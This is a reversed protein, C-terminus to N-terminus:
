LNNGILGKLVDIVDYTIEKSEKNMIFGNFKVENEELQTQIQGLLKYIDNDEMGSNIDLIYNDNNDKLLEDLTIQNYEAITILRTIDVTKITDKKKLDLLWDGPLGMAKGWDAYNKYGSREFLQNIKQGINM